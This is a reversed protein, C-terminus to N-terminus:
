EKIKQKPHPQLHFASIARKRRLEKIKQQSAYTSGSTVHRHSLKGVTVGQDVPKGVGSYSNNGGGVKSRKNLHTNRLPLLTVILDNKGRDRRQFRRKGVGSYAARIPGGRRTSREESEDNRKRHFRPLSTPLSEKDGLNRRAVNVNVNVNVHSQRKWSTTTPRGVWRVRWPLLHVTPGM